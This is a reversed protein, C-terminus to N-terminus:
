KKGSIPNRMIMGNFRLEPLSNPISLKFEPNPTMQNFSSIRSFSGTSIYKFIKILNDDREDGWNLDIYDYALADPALGNYFGGQDASNRTEFTIAILYSLLSEVKNKFITIPRVWMGVPKGYTTDGVLKVNMYPRLDNYLMESASASQNTGIFFVNQLNLNGQGNFNVKNILGPISGNEILPNLKNNYVERYMLKGNTSAPAIKNALYETTSGDGGGNYRVDVILSSISKSAFNNFVRDIENKTLTPNGNDDTIGTFSSLVFYGVNQGNVNYVTDFLIPNVKYSAKSLTVTSTSGDPRVFGFTAQADNYLANVVATVNPGSQGDYQTTKGNVSNIVWGRSVGKQGAPSNKDAYIVVPRIDNNSFRAYLAQIGIDGANGGIEGVVTGDDLFSYRDMIKGNNDTTYSKMRTLLDDATSFESSLPNIAPVKNYWYYLPLDVTSDRGGDLFSKEMIRYMLYKLSDADSLEKTTPVTDDEGTGKKKCSTFLLVSLIFLLCMRTIM